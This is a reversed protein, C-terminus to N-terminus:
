RAGSAASAIMVKPSSHSGRLADEIALLKQQYSPSSRRVVSYRKHNKCSTKDLMQMESDAKAGFSNESDKMKLSGTFFDFRNPGKIAGGTDQVIFYGPHVMTKGNPLTVIKGKFSPMDIIDGMSYYRPDAAVSIYPTLCNGSAGFATQCSGLDVIKGTYTLLKNGPLTGSGQMRVERKFKACPKSSPCYDKVHPIFYVTSEALGQPCSNRASGVEAMAVLSCVVMPLFKINKKLSNTNKM